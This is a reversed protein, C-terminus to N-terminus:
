TSRSTASAATSGTTCTPTTARACSTPGAPRSSGCRRDRRARRLVADRDAGGGGGRVRPDADWAWAGGDGREPTVYQPYGFHNVGSRDDRPSPNVHIHAWRTPTGDADFFERAALQASAYIERPSNVPALMLNTECAIEYLETSHRAFYEAVAQQVADVDEDTAKTVDCAAWDRETLVPDDVLRSITELSPVRAKGGRLGFSVWGDKTPWIERTRGINAGARKAQVHTRFWAPAAMNAVLVTEQMSLDVDVPRM